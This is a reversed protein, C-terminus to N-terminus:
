RPKGSWEYKCAPCKYDTHIGEDVEAFEDPADPGAIVKLTDALGWAELDFGQDELFGLELGLNDFDYGSDEGIKNDIIRYARKQQDTLGERVLVPVEAMGLSRAALLARHGVLLSYNEDVVLPRNFGFEAISKALKQVGKEDHRRNNFEYPTIKDLALQQIKMKDGPFFAAASPSGRLWSGGRLQLRNSLLSAFSM